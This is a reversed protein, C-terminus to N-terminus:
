SMIRWVADPERCASGNGQHEQGGLTITQRYERCYRGGADQYDDAVFARLASADREEAAAEAENM